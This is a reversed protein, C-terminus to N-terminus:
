REYCIQSNKPGGIVNTAREAAKPRREAGSPSRGEVGREDRRYTRVREVCLASRERRVERLGIRGGRVDDVASRDKAFTILLWDADAFTM